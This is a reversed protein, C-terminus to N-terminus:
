YSCNSLIFRKIHHTIPRRDDCKCKLGMSKSLIILREMVVRNRSWKLYMAIVFAPTPTDWWTQRDTQWNDEHFASLLLAIKSKDLIVGCWYHCPTSVQWKWISDVTEEKSVTTKRWYTFIAGLGECNVHHYCKTGRTCIFYM